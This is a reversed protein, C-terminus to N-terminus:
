DGGLRRLVHDLAHLTELVAQLQGEVHRLRADFEAQVGAVEDLAEEVAALRKEIAEQEPVRPRGRSMSLPQDTHFYKKYAAIWDELSAVEQQRVLGVFEQVLTTGPM